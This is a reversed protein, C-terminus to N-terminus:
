PGPQRGATQEAMKARMRQEQGVVQWIEVDTIKIGSAKTQARLPQAAILRLTGLAAAGTFFSRRRM